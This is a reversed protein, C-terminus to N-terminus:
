GHLALHSGLEHHDHAVVVPAVLSDGVGAFERGGDVHLMFKMSSGRRGSLRGTLRLSCVGSSAACVTRSSAVAPSSGASSAGLVTYRLPRSSIRLM